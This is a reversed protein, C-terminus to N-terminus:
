RLLPRERFYTMLTHIIPRSRPGVMCRIGCVRHGKITPEDDTTPNLCAITAESEFVVPSTQQAGAAKSALACTALSFTDTQKLSEAWM